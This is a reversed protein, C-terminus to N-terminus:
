YKASQTYNEQLDSSRPWIVNSETRSHAKYILMAYIPCSQFGHISNGHIM